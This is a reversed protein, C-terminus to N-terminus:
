AAAARSRCVCVNFKLLAACTVIGPSVHRAHQQLHAQAAIANAIVAHRIPALTATAAYSHVCWRDPWVCITVSLFFDFFVFVVVPPLGWFPSAPSRVRCGCQADLSGMSESSLYPVWKAWLFGRLGSQLHWSDARLTLDIHRPSTLIALGVLFVVLLALCGALLGEFLAVLLYRRQPNTLNPDEEDEEMNELIIVELLIIAVVFALTWALLKVGSVAANPRLTLTVEGGARKFRARESQLRPAARLLATGASDWASLRALCDRQQAAPAAAAAAAAGAASPAGGHGISASDAAGSGASEAFGPERFIDTLVSPQTDNEVVCRRGAGRAAAARSEPQQKGAGGAGVEGSSPEAADDDAGRHGNSASVDNLAGNAGGDGDGCDCRQAADTIVRALQELEQVSFTINLFPLHQLAGNRHVLALEAQAVGRNAWTRAPKRVM